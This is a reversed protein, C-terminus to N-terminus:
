WWTFLCPVGMCGCILMLYRWDQVWWALLAFLCTQLAWSPFGIAVSRWKSLTFESLLSFHCSIFTGAGIGVIIKAVLLSIWSNVAFGLFNGLIMIILSVFLPKKRGVLDGLQGGLLNGVLSGATQASAITAPIFARDCVLDYQLRHYFM